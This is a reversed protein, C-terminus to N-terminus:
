ISDALITKRPWLGRNCVALIDFNPPFAREEDIQRGVMPDDLFCSTELTAVISTERLTSSKDIKAHWLRWFDRGDEFSLGRIASKYPPATRELPPSRFKSARQELFLARPRM